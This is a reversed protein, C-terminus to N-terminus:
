QVSLSPIRVGHAPEFVELGVATDDRELQADTKTTVALLAAARELDDAEGLVRTSTALAAYAAVHELDDGETAIYTNTAYDLGNGVDTDDGEVQIKTSTKTQGMESDTLVLPQVGDPGDVVWVDRSDCYRGVIEDTGTRPTAFRALFPRIITDQTKM